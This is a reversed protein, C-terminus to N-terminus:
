RNSLWQELFPTRVESTESLVWHVSQDWSNQPLSPLIQFDFALSVRLVNPMQALFRDYFGGGRGIREGGPGFAVGPVILWDLHPLLDGELVSSPELIGYAGREWSELDREVQIRGPSPQGPGVPQALVSQASMRVWELTPVPSPHIEPEAVAPVKKLFVGNLVRPFFTEFGAQALFYNLSWLNIEDPLSAVLGVKKGSEM